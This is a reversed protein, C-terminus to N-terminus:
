FLGVGPIEICWHASKQIRKSIKGSLNGWVECHYPNNDIPRYGVQLGLGRLFGVQLEVAGLWNGSTYRRGLDINESVMMRGFDVSMGPSSGSSTKYTMSTLRRRSNVYKIFHDSIGRIVFDENSIEEHDHPIVNGLEDIPPPRLEM